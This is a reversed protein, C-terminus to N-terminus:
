RGVKPRMYAYIYLQVRQTWIAISDARATRAYANATGGGGGNCYIKPPSEL